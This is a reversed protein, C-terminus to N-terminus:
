AARGGDPEKASTLADNRTLALYGVVLAIALGWLAAVVATESGLGGRSTAGGM